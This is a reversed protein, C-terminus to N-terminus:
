KKERAAAKEAKLRKKEEREQKFIRQQKIYELKYRKTMKLKSPGAVYRYGARHIADDWSGFRETILRNGTVESPSPVHGLEGTIKRIYKLLDSDTDNEHESIFEMDQRALEAKTRKETQSRVWKGGDFRKGTGM